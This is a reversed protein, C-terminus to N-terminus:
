ELCGLLAEEQRRQQGWWFSRVIGNINECLGRPLKFYSTSYTPIAQAVAKILVKGGASLSHEM